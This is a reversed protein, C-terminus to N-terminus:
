EFATVVSCISMATAMGCEQILIILCTFLQSCPVMSQSIFMLEVDDIFLGRQDLYVM